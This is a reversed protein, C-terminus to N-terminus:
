PGIGGSPIENPKIKSLKSQFACNHRVRVRVRVWAKLESFEWKGAGGGGRSSSSGNSLVARVWWCCCSYLDVQPLSLAQEWLSIKRWWRELSSSEECKPVVTSGLHYRAWGGVNISNLIHLNGRDPREGYFLINQRPLATSWVWQTSSRLSWAWLLSYAKSHQNALGTASAIIIKFIFLRMKHNRTM